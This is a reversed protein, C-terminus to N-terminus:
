FWRFKTEIMEPKDNCLMLLIKCKELMLM